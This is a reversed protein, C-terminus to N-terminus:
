RHFHSRWRFESVTELHLLTIRKSSPRWWTLPSNTFFGKRINGEVTLQMTQVEGEKLQIRQRPSLSLSPRPPPPAIHTNVRACSHNLPEYLCLTLSLSQTHSDTHTHTHTRTHTHTHSLSHTNTHTQTHTHSLSLSIHTHTNSSGPLFSYICPQQAPLWKWPLNDRSDFEHGSFLTFHGLGRKLTGVFRM